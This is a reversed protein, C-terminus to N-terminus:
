GGSHRSGGSFDSGHIADSLPFGIAKALAERLPGTSAQYAAPSSFIWRPSNPRVPGRSEDCRSIPGRDRRGNRTNLAIVDDYPLSVPQPEVKEALADRGRMIVIWLYDYIPRAFYSWILLLCIFAFLIRRITM